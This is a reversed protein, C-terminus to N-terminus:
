DDSVETELIKQRTMKEINIESGGFQLSINSYAILRSLDFYSTLLDSYSLFSFRKGVRSKVFQLLDLFKGNKAM